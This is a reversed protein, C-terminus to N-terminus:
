SFFHKDFYWHYTLCQDQCPSIITFCSCVPDMAKIKNSTCNCFIAVFRLILQLFNANLYWCTNWIIVGYYLYKICDPFDSITRQCFYFKIQSTFLLYVNILCHLSSVTLPGPHISIDHSHSILFLKM